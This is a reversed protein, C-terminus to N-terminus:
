QTSAVVEQFKLVKPKLLHTHEQLWTNWIAYAEKPIYDLPTFNRQDCLYLLDPSDQVLITIMDFNPTTTWCADHLANRGGDCCVRVSVHAVNMLYQLLPTSGRRAVTHIISEQFANAYQMPVQRVEHLHRITDMDNDRVATMLQQTLESSSTSSAYGRVFFGDPVTDYKQFEVTMHHKSQLLEQITEKPSPLPPQDKKSEKQKTVSRDQIAFVISSHKSTIKPKGNTDSTTTTTTSSSSSVTTTTPSTPTMSDILCQPLIHGIQNGESASKRLLKVM